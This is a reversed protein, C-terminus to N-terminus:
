IVEKYTRGDLIQRITGPDKDFKEAIRRTSVGSASLSRIERIQDAIFFRRKEQDRTMNGKAAADWVNEGQSGLFLHSPNCCPPNDCRHCVNMGDPIPGHELEYAVRHSYRQKGNFRYMGYRNSNGDRGKSRTRQWEWCLTPDDKQDVGQWFWGRYTDTLKRLRM